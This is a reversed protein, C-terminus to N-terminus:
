VLAPERRRATEPQWARDKAIVFDGLVLFDLGSSYFTRIADKPTCVIPEGRLNFSTNMIVPTGTLQGFEHILAWYRPNAERSVTQVRATDDAHTVAPIESRRSAPVEFTLTMFAADRCGEFYEPAAEELCSPAFPRWGERFKVCENVRDKMDAQRADALISRNGLARPGFEMRGQFWGVINGDVLLQAVQREVDVVRTASLKYTRLVAELERGSFEPGLYVDRLRYRPMPQGLARHAVLAAGVATGDDTAAPQVFVDDVLESALLRGNAKSNMAVGGALCVRRCGTLRVGERVLEFLAAEAARQVSAALNRDADTIQKEPDRRPGFVAELRSIDNWHRGLVRRADLRYGGPVVRLIRSLDYTPEGYAALGMVKWEDGHREFGLLDTFAEYFSGLSNPWEITRLRKLAGDRAHYLSTAQRAGRGDVVVVLADEFGSLACTSWAHAEHHDVFLVKQQPTVPFARRLARLGNGHYLERAGAIMSDVLMIPSPALRGTLEATLTHLPTLGGRNWGFAIADLANFTLGAYDLAAAIALRPFRADKKIRSFREEEAAFVLSGDQFLAVSSDHLYCNVGLVNM